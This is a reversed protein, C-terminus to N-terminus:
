TPYNESVYWIHLRHIGVIDNVYLCKKYSSSEDNVYFFFFSLFFSLFLFHSCQMRVSFLEDGSCLFEERLNCVQLSCYWDSM